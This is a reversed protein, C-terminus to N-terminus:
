QTVTTSAGGSVTTSAGGKTDTRQGTLSSIADVLAKHAAFVADKAKNLAERVPKGIDSPKTTSASVSAYTSEASVTTTAVTIAAQADAIKVRAIALSAEAKTTDVGREKEKTIRSDLRDALKKMRDIAAQMRTIMTAAFRQYIEIRQKMADKRMEEGRGVTSSGSATMKLRLEDRAEMRESVVPPVPKTTSAMMRKGSSQGTAADRPSKVGYEVIGTPPTVGGTASAKIAVDVVGGESTVAVDARASGSTGAEEAFAFTPLLAFAGIVIVSIASINRM